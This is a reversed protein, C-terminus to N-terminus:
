KVSIIILMCNKTGDMFSFVFPYYGENEIVFTESCFMNIDERECLQDM